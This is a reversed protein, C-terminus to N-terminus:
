RTIPKYCIMAHHKCYPRGELSPLGCFKFDSDGFTYRCEFYQLEDFPIMRGLPMQEAQAVPAFEIPAKYPRPKPQSSREARSIHKGTSIGKFQIMQRHAIGVVANRSVGGISTAVQSASFGADALTRVRDIQEPSWVM